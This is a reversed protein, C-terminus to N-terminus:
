EQIRVDPMSTVKVQIGSDLKSEIKAMRQELKELTRIMQLRQASANPLTPTPASFANADTVAGGLISSAVAGASLLAVAAAGRAAFSRRASNYRFSEFQHRM